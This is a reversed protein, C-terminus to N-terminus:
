AEITIKQRQLIQKLAEVAVKFLEPGSFGSFQGAAALHPELSLLGRYGTSWADALIPEVDGDGQGAPVVKGTALVADKVHIHVVFDRLLKWNAAPREGIQVFNAFDFASRLKPSDISKMLDICRQGNDGFIAKENEHVLTIPFDRVHEVKQRFRSLIEDRHNAVPSGDAPGYYSFLRIMPASFFQAMEVALKFRDFHQPWPEDIRVKGIPSGIVAVALGADRLRTRVDNRAPKTLDLVNVGGVSRLEFHTVGTDRCVDIQKALDPSIEDAFACLQLM